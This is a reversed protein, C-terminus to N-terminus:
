LRKRILNIKSLTKILININGDKSSIKNAEDMQRANKVKLFNKKGLKVPPRDNDFVRFNNNINNPQGLSVHEAFVNNVNNISFNINSPAPVQTRSQIFNNANNQIQSFSSFNNTPTPIFFLNSANFNNMSSHDLCFGSNIPHHMENNTTNNTKFINNFLNM